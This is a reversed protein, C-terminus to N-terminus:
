RTKTKVKGHNEENENLQQQVEPSYWFTMHYMYESLFDKLDDEKTLDREQHVPFQEDILSADVKRSEAVTQSQVYAEVKEKFQKEEEMALDEQLQVCQKYLHEFGPTKAIKFSLHNLNQFDKDTFNSFQCSLNRVSKGLEEENTFDEEVVEEKKSFLSAIWAAARRLRRFKKKKKSNKKHKKRRKKRTVKKGIFHVLRSLPSAFEEKVAEEESLPEEEEKEEAEEELDEEEIDFEELEIDSISENELDEESDLTALEEDSVSEEEFVEEEEAEDTSEYFHNKIRAAVLYIDEIYKDYEKNMRQQYEESSEGDKMESKSFPVEKKICNMLYDLYDIDFESKGQARVQIQKGNELEIKEKM